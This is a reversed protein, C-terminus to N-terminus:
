RGVIPKAPAMIKPPPIINITEDGIQFQLQNTPRLFKTVFASARSFRFTDHIPFSM